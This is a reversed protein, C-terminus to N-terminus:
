GIKPIIFTVSLSLFGACIWYIASGWKGICAYTIGAAFSLIIMLLPFLYEFM